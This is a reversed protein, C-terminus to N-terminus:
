AGRGRGVGKLRTYSHRPWASYRFTKSSRLVDLQSEAGRLRDNLAMLDAELGRRRAIEVELLTALELRGRASEASSDEDSLLARVVFQYTEAEPDALAADLVVADIRQADAALETTGFPRLVRRIQVPVLGAAHLLEDISRRTFFRLHTRDLLGVERYQWRRAM